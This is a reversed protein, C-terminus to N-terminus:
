INVNKIIYQTNKRNNMQTRQPKTDSVNKGAENDDDDGNDVKGSYPILM